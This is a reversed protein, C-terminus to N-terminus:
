WDEEWYLFPETKKFGTKGQVHLRLYLDGFNSGKYGAEGENSIRIRQGDEVGAPIKIKLNKVRRKKGSGKCQSCAREPVKGAGDCEDCTQVSQM